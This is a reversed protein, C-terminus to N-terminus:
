IIQKVKQLSFLQYFQFLHFFNKDIKTFSFSEAAWVISLKLDIKKNLDFLVYCKIKGSM